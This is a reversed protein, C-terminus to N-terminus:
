FYDPEEKKERYNQWYYKANDSRTQAVINDLRYGHYGKDPDEIIRGVTLGDAKLGKKLIYGEKICWATFAELDNLDFPIFRKKASKRLNALAYAYPNKLRAKRSRCTNCLTFGTENYCGQNHCVGPTPNTKLIVTIV